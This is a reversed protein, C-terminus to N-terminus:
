QTGWEDCWGPEGAYPQALLRVTTIADAPTDVYEAQKVCHDLIARKANVEALVRAPDHRAVHTADSFERCRAPRRATSHTNGGAQVGSGESGMPVDRWPGPTAARATQEDADLCGRIFEVLESM